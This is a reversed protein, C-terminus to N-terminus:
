SKVSLRSLILLTGHFLLFYVALFFAAMTIKLDEFVNRKFARLVAGELACACDWGRQNSFM